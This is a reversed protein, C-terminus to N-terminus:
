NLARTLDRMLSGPIPEAFRCGAMEDKAWVLTAEIPWGGEFRLWIKAGEIQDGKVAVRCGYSSLDILEAERAEQGFERVTAMAVTVPSRQGRRQEARNFVPLREVNTAM